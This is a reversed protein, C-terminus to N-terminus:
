SPALGKIVKYMVIVIAQLRRTHLTPLTARLLLEENTSKNDCYVARLAREQIRELKRVDSSRCFHWVTQCCTLHPISPNVSKTADHTILALNYLFLPSFLVNKKM